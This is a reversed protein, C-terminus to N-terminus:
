RVGNKGVGHGGGARCALMAGIRCFFAVGFWPLFLLMAAGDNVPTACWESQTTSRRFGILDAHIRDCGQRVVSHTRTRLAPKAYLIAANEPGFIKESISPYATWLNLFFM